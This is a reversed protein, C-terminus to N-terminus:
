STLLVGVGSEQSHPLWNMEGGIRRLADFKRFVEHGYRTCKLKSLEEYGGM